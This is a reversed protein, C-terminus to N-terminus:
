KDSAISNFHSESEVFKSGIGPLYSIAERLLKIEECLQKEFTTENKVMIVIICPDDRTLQNNMKDVIYGKESWYNIYYNLHHIQLRRYYIKGISMCKCEGKKCGCIYNCECLKNRCASTDIIIYKDSKEVGTSQM